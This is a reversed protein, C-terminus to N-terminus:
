ARGTGKEKQQSLIYENAAELIPLYGERFNGEDAMKEIDSLTEWTVERSYDTSEAYRTPDKVEALYTHIGYEHYEWIGMDYLTKINDAQLGLEESGEKVATFYPPLLKYADDSQM